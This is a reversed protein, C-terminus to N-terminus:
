LLIPSLIEPDRLLGSLFCFYFFLNKNFNNGPPLPTLVDDLSDSYLSKMTNKESFQASEPTTFNVSRQTENKDTSIKQAKKLTIIKELIQGLEATEELLLRNRQKAAEYSLGPNSFVITKITTKKSFESFNRLKM